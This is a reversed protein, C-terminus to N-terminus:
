CGGSSLYLVTDYSTGAGCTQLTASGSVAPTWAIVKEPSGLSSGCTASLTGTGSTTGAFTGGGPPIVIPSARAHPPLTTTTSSTTATITPCSPTTVSVPASKASENGMNDVASIAYTHMTSAALGTDATSTAPALVEPLAIGDRYVKYGHLGSGGSDTSANWAIDVTSCSVGWASQGTPVSPATADPAAATTASAVNSYPSRASRRFAQVRYYYRTSPALGTDHHSRTNSALTVIVTFTSGNPSREVTYGDEHSNTDFWSLDITSSSSATAVLGSPAVLSGWSTANAGQACAALGELRCRRSIQRRCVARRNGAAICAAIADRCGRRCLLGISSADASTVLTSIALVALWLARGATSTRRRM